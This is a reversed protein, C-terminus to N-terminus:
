RWEYAGIDWAKGAPRPRGDLDAAVGEVRDGADIAPSGASLRYDSPPNVAVRAIDCALSHTEHGAAQWEPLPVPASDNPTAAGAGGFINYDSDTSAVDAESQYNIGGRRPNRNHLVNNRIVNRGASGGVLIAWRGDPAMDITNNFVRNGKPGQAGDGHYLAIGSAHNDFLLNNRVISDQVGDMNIGAGGRRGNRCVINNEILAGKILGDGGMSADGNMHIGCGANDHCRNGRIVPRDGSNSTYIGHERRSGYCENSEICLDDSFDTFIGWNGNDGFRGNRITVHPSNDVRVGARAANTVNLGDIILFRCGTMFITDRNDPRDSTACVFANTGTARISIPRDAAGEIREATFGLYTGDAVHVTDGPKVVVLSKRIERFAQGASAGDGADSGAPSVYWDKAGATAASLAAAVALGLGAAMHRRM